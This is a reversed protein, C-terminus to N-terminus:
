SGRKMWQDSFLFHRLCLTLPSPTESFSSAAAIKMGMGLAPKGVLLLGIPLTYPWLFKPKVMQLPFHLASHFVAGPQMMEASHLSTMLGYSNVPLCKLM